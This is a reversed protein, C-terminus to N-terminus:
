ELVRLVSKWTRIYPTARYAKFLDDDDWASADIDVIYQMTFALIFGALLARGDIRVGYAQAWNEAGHLKMLRAHLHVDGTAAQKTVSADVAETTMDVTTILPGELTSRVGRCTLPM